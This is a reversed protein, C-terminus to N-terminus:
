RLNTLFRTTWQGSKFSTLTLKSLKQHVPFQVITKFATKKQPPSYQWTLPLCFVWPKYFCIDTLKDHQKRVFFDVFHKPKKKGAFKLQPSWRTTSVVPCSLARSTKLRDENICWPHYVHIPLSPTTTWRKSFPYCLTNKLEHITSRLRGSLTQTLVRLFITWDVTLDWIPPPLRTWTALLLYSKNKTSTPGKESTRNM